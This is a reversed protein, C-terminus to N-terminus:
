IHHICTGTLRVFKQALNVGSYKGFFSLNNVTSLISLLKSKFYLNAYSSNNVRHSDCKNQTSYAM